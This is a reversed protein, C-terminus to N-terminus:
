VLFHPSSNQFSGTIQSRTGSKRAVDLVLSGGNCFGAQLSSHTSIHRQQVADCQTLNNNDKNKEYWPGVFGHKADILYIVHLGSASYLVFVILYFSM